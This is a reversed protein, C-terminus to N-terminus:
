PQSLLYGSAMVDATGANVQAYLQEGAALAWSGYFLATGGYNVPDSVTTAWTYRVLKALDSLQLWADMGSVTVDGYVIAICKLVAVNGAPVTYVLLPGGSLAPEDFVRLSYVPQAM